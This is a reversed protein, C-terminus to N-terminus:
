SKLLFLLFLDGETLSSVTDLVRLFPRLFKPFRTFPSDTLPTLTKSYPAWFFVKTPFTNKFLNRLTLLRWNLNTQTWNM